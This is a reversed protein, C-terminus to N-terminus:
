VWTAHSNVPRDPEDQRAGGSEIVRQGLNFNHKWYGSRVRM